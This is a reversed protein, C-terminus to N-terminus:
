TDYIHRSHCPVKCLKRRGGTGGPLGRRLAIGARCDWLFTGCRFWCFKSSKASMFALKVDVAASM